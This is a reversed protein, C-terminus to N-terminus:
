VWENVKGKAMKIKYYTLIDHVWLEYIQKMSASDLLTVRSTAELNKSGIKHQWTM